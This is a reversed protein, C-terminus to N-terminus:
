AWEWRRPATPAPPRTPWQQATPCRSQGRRYDPHSARRRRRRTRWTWRRRAKPPKNKNEEYERMPEAHPVRHRAQNGARESRPRLDAPLGEQHALPQGARRGRAQGTARGGGAHLRQEHPVPAAAARHDHLAKGRQYEAGPFRLAASVRRAQLPQGQRLGHPAHLGAHPRRRGAWRSTSIAPSWCSPTASSSPKWASATSAGTSLPQRFGQRRQSRRQRQLASLGREAHDRPAAEQDVHREQRLLQGPIRAARSQDAARRHRRLQEAYRRPRHRLPGELHPQRDRAHRDAAEPHRRGTGPPRQRQQVAAARGALPHQPLPAASGTGLNEPNGRIALQLNSRSRSTKWATCSRSLGARAEQPAEEIDTRIAAMQAQPEAGIRSELGWGRFLLVGPKGGRGGM